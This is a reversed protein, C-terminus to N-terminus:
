EGIAIGLQREAGQPGPGATLVSLEGVSRMWSITKAEQQREGVESLVGSVRFAGVTCM